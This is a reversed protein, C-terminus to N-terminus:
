IKDNSEILLRVHEPLNQQILPIEPAAPHYTQLISEALEILDEPTCISLYYKFCTDVAAPLRPDDPKGALGEFIGAVTSQVTSPDSWVLEGVGDVRDLRMWISLKLFFLLLAQLMQEADWAGSIPDNSDHFLPTYGRVTILKLDIRNHDLRIIFDGAAHHWPSIHEFSAINYYCTMIRAAQRYLRLTQEQSLFKRRERDDWVRIKGPGASNECSIHFEHYGEFWEGLFMSFKIGSGSAAEGVTYVRPLYTESFETNLRQLNHFEGSMYKKGTGSVAVNLVFSLTHGLVDTDIRAPHYFEGHKELHIRIKRIDGPLVEQQLRQTLIECFIHGGDQEFFARIGNFYEGHSVSSEASKGSTPRTLPLPQRWLNSASTLPTEQPSIYYTYKPM